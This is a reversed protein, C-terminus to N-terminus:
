QRKSFPKYNGNWFKNKEIWFRNKENKLTSIVFHVYYKHDYIRLIFNKPNGYLSIKHGFLTFEM